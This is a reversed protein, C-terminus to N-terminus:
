CPKSISCRWMPRTRPPITRVDPGHPSESQGHCRLDLMVAEFGAAAIRAAHGYRIWNTHASSALGHIMVVPPGAGLRHVAIGIGAHGPVISLRPESSMFNNM